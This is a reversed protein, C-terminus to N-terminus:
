KDPTNSFKKPTFTISVSSATYTTGTIVTNSGSTDTAVQIVSGSPLNGSPVTTSTGLLNSLNRANSM